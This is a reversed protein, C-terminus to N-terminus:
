GEIQDDAKLIAKYHYGANSAILMNFRGPSEKGETEGREDM